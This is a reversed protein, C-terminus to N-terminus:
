QKIKKIAFSPHADHEMTLFIIEWHHKSCFEYVAEIVGYRIMDNWNGIIYDHGAIIGDAKVKPAWLELEKITTEYSHDTDIYIWDFYDNQFREGVKTSFGIEIQVEGSEIQSSFKEEVGKRKQLNYRETGWFDVLVLKKPHCINLIKESFTGEDVGLEAVVGQKPLMKLLDNRNLLLKTNRITDSRIAHKPIQNSARRNLNQYHSKIKTYLKEKLPKPIIAKLFNEM